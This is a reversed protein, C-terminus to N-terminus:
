AAESLRRNIVHWFKSRAEDKGDFYDEFFGAEKLAPPYSYREGDEGYDTTWVDPERWFREIDSLRGSRHRYRLVAARARPGSISIRGKQARRDYQAFREYLTASLEAMKQVFPVGDEEIEVAGV